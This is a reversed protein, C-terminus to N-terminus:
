SKTMKMVGSGGRGQCSDSVRTMTLSNGTVAVTYVGKGDCANAGGTDQITMKDGDLSYTGKIDITGDKMLDVEYKGDADMKVSFSVMNGDPGPLSTNWTGVVNQAFISLPSCFCFCIVFFKVTKM